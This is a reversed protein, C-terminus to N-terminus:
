CGSCSSCCEASPCCAAKAAQVAGTLGFAVVAILLMAKVRKM